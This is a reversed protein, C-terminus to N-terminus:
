PTNLTNNVVRVLDKLDTFKGQNQKMVHTLRELFNDRESKDRRYRFERALICNDPQSTYVDDKYDDLIITNSDNYGTIKYLDWLLELKKTYKTYGYSVDCHYDFFIYDIKRNSHSGVIVNKVIFLAYDKSAATWVSVNYHEFLFTLFPQLHPREFIIYYDEMNHYKFLNSKSMHKSKKLKESPEASIITQDLDLFFNPKSM